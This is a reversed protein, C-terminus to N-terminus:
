RVKLLREFYQDLKAQADTESLLIKNYLIDKGAVNRVEGDSLIGLSIYNNYTVKIDEWNLINNKNVPSYKANLISVWGDKSAMYLSMLLNSTIIYSKAIDSDALLKVNNRKDVINKNLIITAFETILILTLFIYTIFNNTETKSTANNHKSEIINKENSLMDEVNTLQKDRNTNFISRQQNMINQLADVKKRIETREELTAANLRKWYKIDSGISEYEKTSEFTLLYIKDTEKQYKEAIENLEINKNLTSSNKIETSKNTFFYMGISALAVSIVFSISFPLLSKNIGSFVKRIEKVKVIENQILFLVIFIALLILVYGNVINKLEFIISTSFIVSFSNAILAPVYDLISIVKVEKSEKISEILNKKM